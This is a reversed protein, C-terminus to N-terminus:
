QPSVVSPLPAARAAAQEGIFDCLLLLGRDQIEARCLAERVGPPPARRLRRLDRRKPAERRAVAAAVRQEAAAVALLASSARFEPGGVPLLGMRIDGMAVEPRPLAPAPARAAQIRRQVEAVVRDREPCRGQCVSAALEMARDHSDFDTLNYHLLARLALCAGKWDAPAGPTGDCVWRSKERKSLEVCEREGYCPTPLQMLRAWDPSSGAATLGSLLWLWIGAAWRTASV